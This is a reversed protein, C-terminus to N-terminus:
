KQPNYMVPFTGPSSMPNTQASDFVCNRVINGGIQATKYKQNMFLQVPPNSKSMNTYPMQIQIYNEVRKNEAKDPVPLKPIRIPKESVLPGNSTKIRQQPNTNIRDSFTKSMNFNVSNQIQETAKKM